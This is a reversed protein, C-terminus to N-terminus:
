VNEKEYYYPVLATTILQRSESWVFRVMRNKFMLDYIKQVDDKQREIAIIPCKDDKLSKCVWDYEDLTIDIDHRKKLRNKVHNFSYAKDKITKM